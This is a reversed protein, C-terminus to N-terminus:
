KKMSFHKETVISNSFHFKVMTEGSSVHNQDDSSFIGQQRGQLFDESEWPETAVAKCFDVYRSCPRLSPPLPPVSPATDSLPVLFGLLTAFVRKL